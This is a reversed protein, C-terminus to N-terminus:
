VVIEVVYGFVWIIHLFREYFARRKLMGFVFLGARLSARVARNPTTKKTQKKPSLHSATFISSERM